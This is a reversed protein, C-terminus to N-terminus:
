QWHWEAGCSSLSPALFLRGKFRTLASRAGPKQAAAVGKGVTKYPAGVAGTGSSDSGKQADVYTAASQGQEAQAQQSRPPPFVVPLAAELPRASGCFKDLQLADFM